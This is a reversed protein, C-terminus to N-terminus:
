VQNKELERVINDLKGSMIEEINHWTKKIRHDTVRNQPFNYTRIKEARMAQGIQNKRKTGLKNQEEIEKQELLKAQLISLANEKNQLQNRENQSAVVIGTPIHTIRIATERKNVNQGGPGSSKYTDIKLDEPKVEIQTKTPKALVAVSATSTHIRGQKETTPIRQVRHVGAEYKIKSFANPGSIQFIVEKHGGLETPHENLLKVQWNQSEAYKSYMNFLNTAFLAAEEGGAGARIEIIASNPENNEGNITKLVEKIEKESDQQKKLLTEKEKQALSILSSDKETTLIKETEELQQITKELEEQKQIILEYIEKQKQLLGIKEWDSSSEIEKLEDLVEQYESKIKSLSEMNKQGAAARRSQDPEPM